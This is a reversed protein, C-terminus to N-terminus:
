ATTRRCHQCETPELHLPLRSSCWAGGDQCYHAANRPDNKALPAVYGALASVAEESLDLVTGPLKVGAKSNFEQIVLCRM